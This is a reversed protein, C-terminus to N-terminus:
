CFLIIVNHLTGLRVLGSVCVSTPCDQVQVVSVMAYGDTMSRVLIRVLFLMAAFASM